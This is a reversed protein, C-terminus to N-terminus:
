RMRGFVFKAVLFGFLAGGLHAFHAVNDFPNNQYAAYIEFGIYVMVYYKVKVPILFYFYLETDPFLYAYAAVIGAIAGSAGVINPMNLLADIQYQRAAIDTTQSYIQEMLPRLDLWYVFLYHVLSAGIGAVLYFNLFRKSGWIDELVSGFMWLNLMNFFLHQFSAHMFLHSVVQYVMFKQSGFYHLGLMDILNFRPFALTALFFLGNIILLNKIVLPLVGFGTPRFSQM